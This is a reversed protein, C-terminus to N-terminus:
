RHCIAPIRRCNTERDADLFRGKGCYVDVLLDFSWGDLQDFVARIGGFYHIGWSRYQLQTFRGEEVCPGNYYLYGYHSERIHQEEDGINLSM